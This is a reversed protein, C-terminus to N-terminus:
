RFLIYTSGERVSRLNFTTCILKVITDQPQQEFPSTLRFDNIEPDAVKIEINYARKLDEFVVGLREGDYSLMGTHWALYNVNSNREQTANSGSVKGVYEPELTLSGSGDVSTVMVKGSAVYVEVENEANETIVNFSTGLVRIKAKGADIIFPHEEDRAIDFFAEGKLSVKRTGSRFNKPYTLSSNRNLFVTSGDSLLVEINKQDSDSTLTIKQPAAVEFLLWGAGAIIIVMAAIRAFTSLFPTRKVPLPMVPWEAAEIRGNLKEWAKDVDVPEEGSYKLDNWKKMIDAEESALIRANEGDGNEEGSLWSAAGAWERDNWKETENIKKM